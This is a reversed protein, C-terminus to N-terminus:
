DDEKGTLRENEMSRFEVYISTSGILKEFECKAWKSHSDTGSVVVTRKESYHGILAANVSLWSKGSRYPIFTTSKFMNDALRDRNRIIGAATVVDLRSGM